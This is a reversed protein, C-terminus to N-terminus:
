VHTKVSNGTFLFGMSTLHTNLNFIFKFPIIELPFALNTALPKRCFCPKYPTFCAGLAQFLKISANM